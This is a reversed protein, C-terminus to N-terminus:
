LSCHLMLCSDTLLQTYFGWPLESCLVRQSLYICLHSSSSAASPFFPKTHMWICKCPSVCLVQVACLSVCICIACLHWQAGIVCLCMLKLVCMCVFVLKIFIHSLSLLLYIRFKMNMFEFVRLRDAWAVFAIREGRGTHESVKRCTCSLRHTTKCHM